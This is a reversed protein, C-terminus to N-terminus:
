RRAFGHRRARLLQGAEPAPQRATGRRGRHRPQRGPGRATERGPQRSAEHTSAFRPELLAAGRPATRRDCSAAAERSPTRRSFARRRDDDRRRGDCPDDVRRAHGAPRLGGVILRRHSRFYQDGATAWPGKWGAPRQSPGDTGDAAPSGNRVAHDTRAADGHGVRRTALRLVDLRRNPVPFEIWRHARLLPSCVRARRHGGHALGLGACSQGAMGSAAPGAALGLIFVAVVVAFSYISNEHVQAFLRTWAIQLIFLLAGSLAALLALTWQPLSSDDTAHSRLVNSESAPSNDAPHRRAICWALVGVFLNLGVCLAYSATAGLWPLWLFPVSLAGVAAGLTNAAYLGSGVLGLQARERVFA